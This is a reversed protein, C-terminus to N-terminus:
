PTPSGGPATKEDAYWEGAEWVYKAGEFYLYEIVELPTTCIKADREGEMHYTFVEITGDPLRTAMAMAYGWGPAEAQAHGTRDLANVLAQCSHEVDREVKGLEGDGADIAFGRALEVQAAAWSRRGTEVFLCCCDWRADDEPDAARCEACAGEALQELAHAYDSLTFLGLRWVPHRQLYVALNRRHRHVDQHMAQHEGLFGRRETPLYRSSGFDPPVKWPSMCTRCELVQKAGPRLRFGYSALEDALTPRRAHSTETM